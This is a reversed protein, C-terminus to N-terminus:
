HREERRDIRTTRPDVGAPLCWFDKQMVLRVDAGTQPLKIDRAFWLSASVGDAVRLQNVPGGPYNKIMSDLRQNFEERLLSLCQSRAETANVIEWSNELVWREDSPNDADKPSRTAHTHHWLLWQAEASTALGGAFLPVSIVLFRM